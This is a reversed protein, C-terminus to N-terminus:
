IARWILMPRPLREELASFPAVDRPYHRAKGRGIAFKAHPGALAHWVVNDLPDAM